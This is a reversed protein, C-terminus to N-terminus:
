TDPPCDALEAENVDFDKMAKELFLWHGLFGVDIVKQPFTKWRPQTYYCHKEYLDCGPGFESVWVLSLLGLSQIRLREQNRFKLLNQVYSDSAPNRILHSIQLLENSSELLTDEYSNVDPNHEYIYYLGGFTALATLFRFPKEKAQLYFDKFVAKYDTFINIASRGLKRQKLNEFQPLFMNNIQNVKGFASRFNGLRAAMKTKTGLVCLRLPSSVLLLSM